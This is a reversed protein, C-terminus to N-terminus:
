FYDKPDVKNFENLIREALTFASKSNYKDFPFRMRYDAKKRLKFLKELEDGISSIEKNKNGTLVSIVDQHISQKESGVGM